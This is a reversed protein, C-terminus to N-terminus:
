VYMFCSLVLHLQQFTFHAPSYLAETQVHPFINSPHHSSFSGGRRSREFNHTCFMEYNILM